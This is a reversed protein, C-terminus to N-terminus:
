ITVDFVTQIRERIKNRKRSISTKVNMVSMGLKSAIEERPLGEILAYKLLEQDKSSFERMAYEIMLIKEKIELIEHPNLSVKDEFITSSNKYQDGDDNDHENYFVDDYHKIYALETKRVDLMKKFTVGWVFTELSADGRFTKAICLSKWLAETTMSIVIKKTWETAYLNAQRLKYSYYNFGEKIWGVVQQYINSHGKRDLYECFAAIIENDRM